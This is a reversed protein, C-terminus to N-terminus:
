EKAKYWIWNATPELPHLPDGKIAKTFDFASTHGDVFLIPSFFKQNDQSLKSSTLTTAGRAYHWHFLYQVGSDGYVFAPPEHMMIFLSPTPAWSVKKGTLNYNPDAATQRTANDWLNGNFRYSCGIAEYNSPKFPGSGGYGAGAPFNQGKDAPCRFSEFSSAYRYLLRNTANPVSWPNPFAFALVPDKGGLAPAYAVQPMVAPSFQQNDRPPLNENNDDAYMHLGLGIQHLNNLCKSVRASEKARSLAPLLLGALIAIIAIVVLLEILTFARAATTKPSIKM